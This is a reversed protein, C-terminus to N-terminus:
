MGFLFRKDFTVGSSRVSKLAEGYAFLIKLTYDARERLYEDDKSAPSDGVFISEANRVILQDPIYCLRSNKYSSIRLEDVPYSGGLGSSVATIMAPKHGIERASAYLFFNKLGAPVMGSWEPSIIVLGDAKELRSKYPEWVKKLASEGQWMSEDWLPLPNESLSIIDTTTTTNLKGIRAALYEAIRQSQSAKRHSGSVLAIHM